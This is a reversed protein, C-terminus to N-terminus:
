NHYLFAVFKHTICYKCQRICQIKAKKIKMKGSKKDLVEEEIFGNPCIAVEAFSFLKKVEEIFPKEGFNMKGNPLFSPIANVNPLNELQTFDFVNNEKTYYWFFVNKNEECIRTWMDIYEQSPFDGAAHIRQYKVNYHAIEFNIEDKLWELAHIALFSNISWKSIVEPKWFDKMAYCFLKCKECNKCTLVPSLNFCSACVKSNGEIQLVSKIYADIPECYVVMSNKPSAFNKKYNQVHEFYRLFEKEARGVGKM